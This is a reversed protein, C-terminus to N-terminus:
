AGVKKLDHGCGCKGPKQSVTKCTCQSGCGCVYQGVTNFQRDKDWAEAKFSATDKEVKTVKAKVLDNGCGCKGKLSSITNCPCSTCNCVYYEEGTKVALKGTSSQYAFGVLALILLMGAALLLNRKTGM